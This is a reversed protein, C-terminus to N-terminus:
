DNSLMQYKVITGTNGDTTVSVRVLTGRPILSIDWTATTDGESIALESDEIDSWNVGDISQQLKADMDGTLDDIVLEAVANQGDMQIGETEVDGESLDYNMLKTKLSMEENNLPENIATQFTAPVIGNESYHAAVKKNEAEPVTISQGAKLMATPMLNNAKAIAFVSGLGGCHQIAVDFLSQGQKVEVEKM